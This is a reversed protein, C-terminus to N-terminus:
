LVTSGFRLDFLKRNAIAFSASDPSQICVWEFKVETTEMMGQATFYPLPTIPCLFIRRYIFVFPAFCRM